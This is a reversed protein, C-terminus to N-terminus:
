HKRINLMKSTVNQLNQQQHRLRMSNTRDYKKNQVEKRIRQNYCSFGHDSESSGQRSIDVDIEAENEVEFYKNRYKGLLAAADLSTLREYAPAYTFQEEKITNVEQASKGQDNSTNSDDQQSFPRIKDTPHGNSSNAALLQKNQNKIPAQVDKRKM